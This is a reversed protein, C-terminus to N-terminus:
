NPSRRRIAASASTPSLWCRGSTAEVVLYAAANVVLAAVPETAATAAAATLCPGANTQAFFCASLVGQGAAALRFFFSPVPHRESLRPLHGSFGRNKRAPANIFAYDSRCRAPLSTPWHGHRARGETWGLRGTVPISILNKEAEVARHDASQVADGPAPRDTNWRTGSASIRSTISPAGLLAECRVTNLSTDFGNWNPREPLACGIM